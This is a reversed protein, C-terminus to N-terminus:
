GRRSSGNVYWPRGSSAIALIAMLGIQNGFARHQLPYITPLNIRRSTQLRYYTELADLIACVAQVHKKLKSTECCRKLRGGSCSRILSAQLYLSLALLPHHAPSSSASFAGKDGGEGGEGWGRFPQLRENEYIEEVIAQMHLGPALEPGSYGGDGLVHLEEDHEEPSEENGDDRDVSEREMTPMPTPM